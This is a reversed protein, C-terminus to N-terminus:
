HDSGNIFQAMQDQLLLTPNSYPHFVHYVHQQGEAVEMKVEKVGKKRLFEVYLAGREMLQDSGAVFVIVSPFNLWEVEPQEITEFNCAFHDRDSREPLSLRWLMDNSEVFGALGDTTESAIRKESGFFPHIILLGQIQIKVDNTTSRLRMALVAVHHTINGGASDGSLFVRSLDVPELWPETRDNTATALWNLAGFCDDYATPLRNEPALRYNISVVISHSRM